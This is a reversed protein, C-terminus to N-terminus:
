DDMLIVKRVIILEKIPFNVMERKVARINKSLRRRKHLFETIKKQLIKYNGSYNNKFQTEERKIDREKEELKRLKVIYEKLLPDCDRRRAYKRMFKIKNEIGYYSSVYIDLDLNREQQAVHGQNNCMPCRNNGQRFWQIICECHFEHNCEPLKYRPLDSNEHCIPCIDQSSM